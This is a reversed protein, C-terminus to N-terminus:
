LQSSKAFFVICNCAASPVTSDQNSLLLRAVLHQWIQIIQIRAYNGQLGAGTRMIPATLNLLKTMLYPENRRNIYFRKDLPLLIISGIRLCNALCSQSWCLAKNNNLAFRLLARGHYKFYAIKQDTLFGLHYIGQAPCMMSNPMKAAVPGAWTWRKISRNSSGVESKGSTALNVQLGTMPIKFATLSCFPRAM